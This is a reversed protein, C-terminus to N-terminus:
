DTCRQTAAPAPTRAPLPVCTCWKRCTQTGRNARRRRRRAAPTVPPQGSMGGQGPRFARGHPHAASRQMGEHRLAGTTPRVSCRFGAGISARWMSGGGGSTRPVRGAYRQLRRGATRLAPSAPFHAECPDVPKYYGLHLICILLIKIM